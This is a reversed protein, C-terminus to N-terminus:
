RNLTVTINWPDSGATITPVQLTDPEEINGLFQDYDLQIMMAKVKEPLRKLQSQKACLNSIAVNRASEVHLIRLWDSNKAM